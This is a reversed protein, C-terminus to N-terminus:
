GPTMPRLLLLPLHVGPLRAGSAAQQVMRGSAPRGFPFPLFLCMQPAALTLSPSSRTGVWEWLVCCALFGLALRALRSNFECTDRRSKCDPVLWTKEMRSGGMVNPHPCLPYRAFTESCREVQQSPLEGPQVQKHM